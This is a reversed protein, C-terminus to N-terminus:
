EKPHEPYELHKSVKHTVVSNVVSSAGGIGVFGWIIVQTLYGEPDACFAQIHAEQTTVLMTAGTILVAAVAGSYGGIKNAKVHDEAKLFTQLLGLMKWM